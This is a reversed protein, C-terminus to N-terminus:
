STVQRCIDHVYRMCSVLPTFSPSSRGNTVRSLAQVLFKAASADYCGGHGRHVPEENDPLHSWAGLAINMVDMLARSRGVMFVAWVALQHLLVRANERGIPGCNHAWRTFGLVAPRKVECVDGVRAHLLKRPPLPVSRLLLYRIHLLLQRAVFSPSILAYLLTQFAFHLLLAQCLLIANELLARIVQVMSSHGPPQIWIQLAHLLLLLLVGTLHRFLSLLLLLLRPPHFRTRSTRSVGSRFM